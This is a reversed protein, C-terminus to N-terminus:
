NHVNKPLTHIRYFRLLKTKIKIIRVIKVSINM